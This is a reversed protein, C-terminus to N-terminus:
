ATEGVRLPALALELRHLERELDMMPEDVGAIGHDRAHIELTLAAQAARQAAFSSVSGRLTHAVRELTNRDGTAICDRIEALRGPLETLFM